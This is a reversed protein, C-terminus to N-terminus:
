AESCSEGCPGELSELKVLIRTLTAIFPQIEEAEIGELVENWIDMVLPCLANVMADGAPTLELKVVRRDAKDRSRQVLEREELQDIVRTMAGSDHGIDRALGSATRAIDYRILSLVAWQIFSVDLDVFAAEMRALGLKHIRRILYGISTQPRFTDTTYFPEAM